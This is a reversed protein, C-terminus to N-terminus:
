NKASFITAKAVVKPPNCFVFRSPTLGKFFWIENNYSIKLFYFLKIIKYFITYQFIGYRM